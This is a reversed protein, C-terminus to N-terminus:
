TPNINLFAEKYGTIQDIKLIEKWYNLSEANWVGRKPNVVVERIKDITYNNFVWSVAKEDGLNLAKTIIENAVNPDNGDLTKIDFSPLLTQLFVPIVM